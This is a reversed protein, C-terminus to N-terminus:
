SSDMDKDHGSHRGIERPMLELMMKLLFWLGNPSSLSSLLVRHHDVICLTFHLNESLGVCGIM